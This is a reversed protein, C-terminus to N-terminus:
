SSSANRGSILPHPVRAREPGQQQLLFAEHFFHRSVGDCSIHSTRVGGGRMVRELAFCIGRVFTFYIMLISYDIGTLRINTAM